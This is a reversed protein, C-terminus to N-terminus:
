GFVRLYLLTAVVLSAASTIIGTWALRHGADPGSGRRLQALAVGGLVIGGIGFVFLVGGEILSFVGLVVSALAFPNRRRFWDAYARARAEYQEDERGFLGV